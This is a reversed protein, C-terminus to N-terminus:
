VTHYSRVQKTHVVHNTVKRFAALTRISMTPDQVVIFSEPTPIHHAELIRRTEIANAGCNTSRDEIIITCGLRAISARDYFRELIINLVRSEPLNQIEPLLPAYRPNQAVANYLYQTSHGIGGCIVLTKALSPTKELAAFVTKACHLIASGCLVICDTSSAQSLDRIQEHALFRAILNVDVATSSTAM